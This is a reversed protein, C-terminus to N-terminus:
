VREREKAAMEEFRRSFVDAIAYLTVIIGETLPHNLIGPQRLTEICGAWVVPETRTVVSEHWAQIMRDFHQRDDTEIAHFFQLTRKIAAQFEPLMVPASATPSIECSVFQLTSFYDILCRSQELPLGDRLFTALELFLGRQQQALEDCRSVWATDSLSKQRAFARSYETTSVISVANYAQFQAM